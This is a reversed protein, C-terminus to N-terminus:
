NALDAGHLRALVALAATSLEEILTELTVRRSAALREFRQRTDEPLRITPTTM